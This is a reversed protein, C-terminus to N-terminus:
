IHILSLYYLIFMSKMLISFATININGALGNYLPIRGIKDIVTYQYFEIFRNLVAGIELILTFSILLFIFGLLKKENKITLYSNLLILFAVFLHSFEIIASSTNYAYSISVFALMILLFVCVIPISLNLNFYGKRYNYILHSTAVISGILQQPYLKDITGFLPILLIALIYSIFFFQPLSINKM